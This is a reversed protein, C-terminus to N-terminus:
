RMAHRMALREAMRVNRDGGTGNSSGESLLEINWENWRGENDENSSDGSMRSALERNRERTLTDHAKAMDLEFLMQNNRLLEFKTREQDEVDRVHTMWRGVSVSLGSTSDRFSPSCRWKMEIVQLKHEAETPLMKRDKGELIQNREFSAALDAHFLTHSLKRSDRWKLALRVLMDEDEETMPRETVDPNTSRSHTPVEWRDLQRSLGRRATQRPMARNATPEYPAVRERQPLAQGGRGGRGRPGRGRRNAPM